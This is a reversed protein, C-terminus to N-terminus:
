RHCFLDKIKMEWGMGAVRVGFMHLTCESICCMCAPYNQNGAGESVQQLPPALSFCSHLTHQIVQGHSGNTNIILPCFVISNALWIQFKCTSSTTQWWKKFHYAHEIQAYSYLLFFFFFNLGVHIDSLTRYILSASNNVLGKGREEVPFRVVLSHVHIDPLLHLPQFVACDITWARFTTTNYDMNSGSLGAPSPQSGSDCSHSSLRHSHGWWWVVCM